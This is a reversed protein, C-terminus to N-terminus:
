GIMLGIDRDDNNGGCGSMLISNNQKDTFNSYKEKNKNLFDILLQKYDQFKSNYISGLRESSGSSQSYDGYQTQAGKNGVQNTLTDVASFCVGWAMSKQLIDVLKEEDATYTDDGTIVDQHKALLYEAFYDGLLPKLWILFVDEFLYDIRDVNVNNQIPTNEKLYKETIFYIM